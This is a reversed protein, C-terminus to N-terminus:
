YVSTLSLNLLALKTLDRKDSGPVLGPGKNSYVWVGEGRKKRGLITQALNQQFHKIPDKFTTCENEGHQLWVRKTM